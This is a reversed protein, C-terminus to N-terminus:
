EGEIMEVIRPPVIARVLVREAMGDLRFVDEGRPEGAEAGPKGGPRLAADGDDTVAGEEEV